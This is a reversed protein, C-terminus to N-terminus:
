YVKLLTGYVSLHPISYSLWYIFTNMSYYRYIFYSVGISFWLSTFFFFSTLLDFGTVKLSTLQPYFFTVTHLCCEFSFNMSSLGYHEILDLYFIYLVFDFSLRYLHKGPGLFIGQGQLRFRQEVRTVAVRCRLDTVTSQWTGKYQHMYRLVCIHISM